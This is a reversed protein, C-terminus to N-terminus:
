IIVGLKLCTTKAEEWAKRMAESFTKVEGKALLDHARCMVWKRIARFDKCISETLGHKLVLDCSPNDKEDSLGLIDKMFKKLAEDGAKCHKTLVEAVALIAIQCKSVTVEKSETM